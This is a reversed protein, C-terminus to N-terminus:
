FVFGNNLCFDWELHANAEYGLKMSLLRVLLQVFLPTLYLSV